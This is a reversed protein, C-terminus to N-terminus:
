FALRYVHATIDSCSFWFAKVGARSLLGPCTEVWFLPFDDDGGEGGLTAVEREVLGM